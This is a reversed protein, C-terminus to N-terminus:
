NKEAYEARKKELLMGVQDLDIPAYGKSKLNDCFELWQEHNWEGKHKKVFNMAMCTKSLKKLNDERAGM